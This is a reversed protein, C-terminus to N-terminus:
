FFPPQSFLCARWIAPPSGYNPRCTQETDKFYEWVENYRRYDHEILEYDAVSQAASALGSKIQGEIKEKQGVFLSYVEAHVPSINMNEDVKKIKYDAKPAWFVLSWYLNSCGGMPTTYDIIMEQNEPAMVFWRGLNPDEPGGKSWIGEKVFLEAM